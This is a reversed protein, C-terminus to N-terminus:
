NKCAGPSLEREGGVGRRPLACERVRQEVLQQVRQEARREIEETRQQMAADLLEIREEVEQQM